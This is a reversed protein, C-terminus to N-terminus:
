LKCSLGHQLRYVLLAIGLACRVLLTNLTMKFFKPLDVIITKGPLISKETRIDTLDNIAIKIAADEMIAKGTYSTLVLVATM